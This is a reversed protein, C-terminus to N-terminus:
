VQELQNTKVIELDIIIILLLINLKRVIKVKYLLNKIEMKIKQVKKYKKRIM